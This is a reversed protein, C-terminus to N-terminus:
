SAKLLISLTSQILYFQKQTGCLAKGGLASQINETQSGQPNQSLIHNRSQKPLEPDLELEFSTVPLGKPWM